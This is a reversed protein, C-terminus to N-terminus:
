KDKVYVYPEQKAPTGFLELYSIPDLGPNFTGRHDTRTVEGKKIEGLKLATEQESGTIVRREETWDYQKDPKNDTWSNKSLAHDVEHNLLSMPSLVNKSTTTVTRTPDWTIQKTQPDYRNSTGQNISFKAKNNELSEIMKGAGAKNLITVAAYFNKIFKNNGGYTSGNKYDYTQKKGKDDTYNIVIDKGDPDVFKMPNNGAWSYPSLTPYKNAHPDMTTTHLDWPDYQRWHFDYLNLGLDEQYEKKQYKYKNVVSNERIYSNFLAGGPYYDDTQVV